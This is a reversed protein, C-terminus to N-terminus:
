VFTFFVYFRNLKIIIFFISTLKYTGYTPSPFDLGFFQLILQLIYIYIYSDM